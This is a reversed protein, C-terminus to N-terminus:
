FFDVYSLSWRRLLLSFGEHRFPSLSFGVEDSAGEARDGRASRDPVLRPALPSVLWLFFM